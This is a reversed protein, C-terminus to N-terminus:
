RSPGLEVPQSWGVQLGLDHVTNPTTTADSGVVAVADVHVVAQVARVWRETDAPKRGVDVVVWVQDAQVLHLAFAADDDFGIRPLGLAVFVPHEERVGAARAAVVMRRDTLRFLGDDLVAGAVTLARRGLAASMERAVDLPDTGLGIVVIMDGAGSLPARRFVAPGEVTPLIQATNYSLDAMITDFSASTTSLRPVQEYHLPATQQPATHVPAIHPPEPAPSPAASPPATFIPVEAEKADAEDLLAALGARTGLDFVHADRATGDPVDVEVEYTRQAFFGAVGGTTKPTVAVISATPGHEALVRANLEDLSSGELRFRNPM